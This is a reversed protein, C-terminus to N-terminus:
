LWFTCVAGFLALAGGVLAAGGNGDVLERLFIVYGVGIAVGCTLTPIM